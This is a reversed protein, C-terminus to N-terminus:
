WQGNPSLLWTSDGSSVLWQYGGTESLFPEVLGMVNDWSVANLLCEFTATNQLQKM